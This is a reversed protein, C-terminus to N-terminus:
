GPPFQFSTFLPAENTFFNEIKFFSKSDSQYNTM